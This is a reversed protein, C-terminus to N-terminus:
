SQQTFPLGVHVVNGIQDLEIQGNEVTKLPFYEGDIVSYVEKGELHDLGDFTTSGPAFKTVYSDMYVADGASNNERPAFREIYRKGGRRVSVWVDDELAVGPIIAVSEYDGDTEHLTWALVQKAKNYTCTALKGNALVSYFMNDPDQAYATDVIGSDTLHKAYMTIDPSLYAQGENTYLYERYKRSDRQVFFMADNILKGQINASGFTTQRNAFIGSPTVLGNPGSVRWEASSTGLILDTRGEMWLITNARQSNITFEFGSADGIDPNQEFDFYEGPKSVWVKNPTRVTGALWLRGQFYTCCTPYTDNEEPGPSPGINLDSPPNSIILETLQPLGSSIRLLYVQHHPHTMVIDAGIQVYKVQFIEDETWPATIIADSTYITEEGISDEISSWILYTQGSYWTKGSWSWTDRAYTLDQYMAARAYEGWGSFRYTYVDLLKDQDGSPTTKRQYRPDDGADKTWLFSKYATSKSYNRIRVYVASETSWSIDDPLQAFLYYGSSVYGVSISFGDTTTQLPGTVTVTLYKNPFQGLDTWWSNNGLPVMNVENSISQADRYVARQNPRIIFVGDDQFTESGYWDQGNVSFQVEYLDTENVDGGELKFMVIKDSNPYETTDAYKPDLLWSAYMKNDAEIYNHNADDPYDDIQDDELNSGIIRSIGIEPPRLDDIGDTLNDDANSFRLKQDYLEIIYPRNQGLVASIIRSKKGAWEDAQADYDLTEKIKKSGTRKTIGGDEQVIMNRIKSAGKRFIGTDLRGGLRPGIEGASFDTSLQVQKDPM